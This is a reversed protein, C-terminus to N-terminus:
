ESERRGVPTVAIVMLSAGGFTKSLLWPSLKATIYRLPFLLKALMTRRGSPAHFGFAYAYDVVNLGSMALLNLAFVTDLFILHGPNQLKSKFMNRLAVNLSNDLPINFAMYKCKLSIKKIFDIPDPVHEFVDFLTVMDVFDGSEYFDGCIFDIKEIAIDEVHPSVDYGKLKSQEYGHLDFSKKILNLIDGSGCGVDVLSNVILNNRAAFPLFLALFNDAKFKADESHRLGDEFYQGSSYAKVAHTALVSDESKQKMVKLHDVILGDYENSSLVKQIEQM